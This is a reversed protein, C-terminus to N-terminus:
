KRSYKHFWYQLYLYNRVFNSPPSVTFGSRSEGIGHYQDYMLIMATPVKRLKLAEYFEETQEMPTRRDIMGVVMLTPTKVNGVYMLPSHKLYESPDVWPLKHFFLYYYQISDTVGAFSLWDTVPCEVAAAAFRDTHGVTWSTLVGGGSCGYVFLNRPDVYGRTLVADVGKMLDKFDPGPYNFNIGNAFASGYGTSGRPNIDVVVYGHAALKQRGFDFGVNWM